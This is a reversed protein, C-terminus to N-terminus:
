FKLKLEEVGEFFSDLNANQPIVGWTEHSTLRHVYLRIHSFEGNKYYVSLSPWVKGIPLTVIEGKGASSTFWSMPLYAKDIGNIGRRYQIVYGNKYPYIKELSINKYYYESQKDKNDQAFVPSGIVVFVAFVAAIALKKM